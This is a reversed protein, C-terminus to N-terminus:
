IIKYADDGNGFLGTDLAIWAYSDLETETPGPSGNYDALTDPGIFGYRGIFQDNMLDYRYQGDDLERVSLVQVRQSKEEGRFGQILRHQLTGVDGTWFGADKAGMLAQYSIPGDRYRALMRFALQLAQPRNNEDFWRSYIRRIRSEGYQEADEAESDIGLLSQLFNTPEDLREVPSTRGFYIVVQSLRKSQNDEQSFSDQLIANDGTVTVSSEQPRVARFKIEQDIEDWWIYVLSQECLENILVTVDTPKVIVVNFLHTGLWVAAEAQWDSIPIFSSDIGAFNELLDQIIADVRAATFRKCEQIATDESHTTKTTGDTERVITLVDGSRTFTMLEKAIRITGSASYESNGIGTPTLTVSTASDTIDALVRGTNQVPCEAKGGAALNLIDKATITVNGKANPGKWTDILYTRRRLNALTNVVSETAQQEPAQNYDWPLYGTLVHLQRGTYYPNRARLKGWFTGQDFPEYTSSDDAADGSIREAVYKDIGRDHHPHEEFKVSVTARTGLSKGPDIVTPASDVGRLSPIADFLRSFGEVPDCFRYTKTEVDYNTPDQCSVRTNFCKHEGTTGLVAVCPSTGYVLSCYDLDLEVVRVFRKGARSRETDWTM